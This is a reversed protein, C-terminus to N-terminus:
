ACRRHVAGRIGDVIRFNWTNQEVGFGAQVMFLVQVKEAIVSWSHARYRARRGM